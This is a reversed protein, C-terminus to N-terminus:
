ADIEAKETDHAGIACGVSVYQRAARFVDLLGLPFRVELVSKLVSGLYVTLIGRVQVEFGIEM